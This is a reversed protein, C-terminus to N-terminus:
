LYQGIGMEKLDNALKRSFIESGTKNLHTANYLYNTDMSLSDEEYNLIPIQYQEALRKYLRWMEDRGELKQTIKQYIPAHVFIMQIGEAHTEALYQEFQELTTSDVTFKFSKKKRLRTGNWPEEKGIYGNVPAVKTKFIRKIGFNAYRYFPLYKDAFTFEEYPVVLEQMDRRYFYPFYQFQEYGTTYALTVFDINQLIVKPKKDYMRYIKYRSYQRNFASGDIGLNYTHCHLVSDLIAPSYHVWARSNGMIVIDASARGDYIENWGLMPRYEYHNLKKTLVVDLVCMAVTVMLIFLSTRILFKKM